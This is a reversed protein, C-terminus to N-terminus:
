LLSQTVVYLMVMRNAPVDAARTHQSGASTDTHAHPGHQQQIIHCMFYLICDYECLYGAATNSAVDYKKQKIPINPVPEGFKMREVSKWRSSGPCIQAFFQQLFKQPNAVRVTQKFIFVCRFVCFMCTDSPLACQSERKGAGVEVCCLAFYNTGRYSDPSQARLVCPNVPSPQRDM